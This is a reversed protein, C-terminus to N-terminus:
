HCVARNASLIIIRHRYYLKLAVAGHLVHPSKSLHEKHGARQRVLCSKNSTITQLTHVPFLQNIYVHVHVCIQIFVSCVHTTYMEQITIRLLLSTHVHVCYTYIGYQCTTESILPCMSNPAHNTTTSSYQASQGNGLPLHCSCDM